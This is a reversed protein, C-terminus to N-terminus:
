RKAAIASFYTGTSSASVAKFTTAASVASVCEITLACSAPTSAAYAIGSASFTGGSIAVAYTHAKVTAGGIKINITISGAIALAPVVATFAYFLQLPSTGTALTDSLVATTAGGAATADSSLEAYKTATVSGPVINDTTVVAGTIQVDTGNYSINSGAGGLVFDGDNTVTITPVTYAYASLGAIDQLSAGHINYAPFKLYLTQGSKDSTFPIKLVADDLRLFPAGSAHSASATGYLGRRLYTINYHDVSTLAANQYSVLEGGVYSLTVKNDADALTVSSLALHSTMNVALTNTTDPDAGAPLTATLVGIRGPNTVIGIRKYSTGDYSAWVECGGWYQGGAAAIWIEMGTNTIVSPPAFVVLSTTNGPDVNYDSAYGDSGQSPYTTASSAGAPADEATIEYTYDDQEEISLIRVLKADIGL